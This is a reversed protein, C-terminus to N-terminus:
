TEAAKQLPQFSFDLFWAIFVVNVTKLYFRSILFKSSTHGIEVNTWQNIKLHIIKNEYFFNLIYLFTYIVTKGFGLPKNTKNEELGLGLSVVIVKKVCIM